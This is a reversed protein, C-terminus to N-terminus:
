IVEVAVLYLSVYGCHFARRCMTTREETKTMTLQQGEDPQEPVFGEAPLHEGGSNGHHEENQKAMDTAEGTGRLATDPPPEKKTKKLQRDEGMATKITTKLPHGEDPQEPAFGAAPLHEGGSNGHHEETQEELDTAVGTGRLATDPPPETDGQQLKTEGSGIPLKTEDENVQGLGAAVGTGGMATDPPPETGEKNEKEQQDMAVAVARRAKADRKKKKRRSNGRGMPAPAPLRRSRGQRAGLVCVRYTRAAQETDRETWQPCCRRGALV